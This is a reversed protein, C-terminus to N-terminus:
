AAKTFLADTPVFAVEVKLDHLTHDEDCEDCHPIEDLQKPDEVTALLIGTKACYLNYVRRLLGGAALIELIVFAEGDSLRLAAAALKPVIHEQGNQIQNRVYNALRDLLEAIRPNDRKVREFKPSSM